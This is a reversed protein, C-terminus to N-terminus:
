MKEAAFKRRHRDKLIKREDRVAKSVDDSIFIKAGLYPNGELKAAANKLIFQKNPYWLLAVHISRSLQKGDRRNQRNKITTHHARMTVIDGELNMHNFIKCIEKKVREMARPTQQLVVLGDDRYLGIEVGPIENLQSLLYCGVLECTEAGDYSGMTVDFLSNSNRKKWPQGNSLLLSHMANIFKQRDTASINM